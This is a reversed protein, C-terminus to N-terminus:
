FVSVVFHLFLLLFVNGGDDTSWHENLEAESLSEFYFDRTSDLLLDPSDLRHLTDKEVTKPTQAYANKQLLLLFWLFM